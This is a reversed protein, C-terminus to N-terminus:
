LFLLVLLAVLIVPVFGGGGIQQDTTNLIELEHDTLVKLWPDEPVSAGMKRINEIKIRKEDISFYNATMRLCRVEYEIRRDPPALQPAKVITNVASKEMDEIGIRGATMTILIVKFMISGIICSLFFALIFTVVNATAFVLMLYLILPIGLLLTVAIAIKNNRAALKQKQNILKIIDRAKVLERDAENMLSDPPLADIYLSQYKIVPSDALHTSIVGPKDIGNHYDISVNEAAAAATTDDYVPASIEFAGGFGKTKHSISKCSVFFVVISLIAIRKIQIVSIMKM